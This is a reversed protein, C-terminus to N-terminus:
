KKEFMSRNEYLINYFFDRHQISLNKNVGLINFLNLCLKINGDFGEQYDPHKLFFDLIGITAEKIRIIRAERLTTSKFLLQSLEYPNERTEDISLYISWWLSSMFATPHNSDGFWHQKIYGETNVNPWRNKVYPFLDVHTLYIWLDDMQALLPSINKYAEYLAIASSFDERKNYKLRPLLGEPQVINYLSRTQSPDYDFSDGMYREPIINGRLEELYQRKFIKQLAM